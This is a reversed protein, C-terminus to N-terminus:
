TSNLLLLVLETRQQCIFRNARDNWADLTHRKTIGCSFYKSEEASYIYVTGDNTHEVILQSVTVLGFMTMFNFCSKKIRGKEYLVDM